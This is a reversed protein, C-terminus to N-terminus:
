SSTAQISLPVFLNLDLLLALLVGCDCVAKLRYVTKLRCVASSWFFAAWQTILLAVFQVAISLTM